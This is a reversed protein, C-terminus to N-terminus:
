VAQALLDARCAYHDATHTLGHKAKILHFYELGKDVLGAHTCASLVGVFTIHDPKPCSDFLLKFLQLGHVQKGLNEATHHACANFGRCLHFRRIGSKMLESFLSFGDRKLTDTLRIWKVDRNVMKYFIRRAEEIRGCKGYINSLASWFIKDSDLGTRM